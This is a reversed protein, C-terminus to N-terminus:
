IGRGERGDADMQSREAGDMDAQREWQPENKVSQGMKLIRLDTFDTTGGMEREDRYIWRGKM